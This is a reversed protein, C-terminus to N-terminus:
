TSPPYRGKQRDHAQYAADATEQCLSVTFAAVINTPSTKKRSQRSM